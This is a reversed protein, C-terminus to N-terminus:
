ECSHYVVADKKVILFDGRGERLRMTDGDSNERADLNQCRFPKKVPNVPNFLIAAAQPRFGM